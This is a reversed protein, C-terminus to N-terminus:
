APSDTGSIIQADAKKCGVSSRVRSTQRGVDDSRYGRHDAFVGLHSQWHGPRRIAARWLSLGHAAHHHAGAKQAKEFHHDVDAVRVMVEHDARSDTTSQAKVVIMAGTGFTLQARHEGIRLREVFGFARCLWDVAERVDPYALLPIVVSTPMSRNKSDM